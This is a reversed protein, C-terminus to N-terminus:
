NVASEKLKKKGQLIYRQLFYFIRERFHKGFEKYFNRTRSYLHPQFVTIMRAPHLKRMADLTANVETPHHAYDDYIKIGNDFKLELRRKVGFFTKMAENFREPRINFEKAALYAATSNLINHNGLVKIMLEAKGPKFFVCNKGYSMDTIVRDNNKKFGYLTKNEFKDLVDRVNADDGCAIVKTNPRSNEVFKKFNEKIDNLDKYIDLHDSDINTIVIIDSNLELFSRDYEDAEVVAVKGNGIRSSGGDLFDINGGVFVTPDIKNEILVKAIMATTTTKGHTGAVSIVFKDNVINGLAHARKVLKKGTDKAKKLEANDEKVASTYIVLDADDSLNNKDHGEFIRVGFKKLRQTVPSVNSDSGTVEYNKKALYEAIGSMGIGGIGILHVKKIGDFINNM